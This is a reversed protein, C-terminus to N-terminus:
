VDVAPEDAVTSSYTSSNSANLLLPLWGLIESTELVDRKAQGADYTDDILGQQIIRLKNICRQMSGYLQDKLEEPIQNM